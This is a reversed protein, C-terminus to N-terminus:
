NLWWLEKIVYIVFGTKIYISQTFCHKETPKYEVNIVNITITKHSHLLLSTSKSHMNNKLEIIKLIYITLLERPIYIKLVGIRNLTKLRLIHYLVYM